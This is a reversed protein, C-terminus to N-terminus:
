GRFEIRGQGSLLSLMKWDLSGCGVHGIPRGVWKWGQYQGPTEALVGSTLQFLHILLQMRRHTLVHQGRGLMGASEVTLGLEAKVWRIAQEM